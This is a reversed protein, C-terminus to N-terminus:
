RFGEAVEGVGLTEAPIHERFELLFDLIEVIQDSVGDHFTAVDHNPIAGALEDLGGKVGQGFGEVGWAGDTNPGRSGEVGDTKLDGDIAMSQKM